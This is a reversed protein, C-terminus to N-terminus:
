EDKVIRSKLYNAKLIFAENEKYFTEKSSEDKLLSRMEDKAKRMIEKDKIINGLKFDPIGSQKDGLFEGAGRLELDKESIKFGDTTECIINIREKIIDNLESHLILYCYGLKDGRGVRGRLQHLQSLGFREAGEILITTANPNDIGVEIVTTSFLVKIDGSAFRNMIYEKEEDKMKGHIIEIKTDSFYTEKARQFESSLTIFSSDNNEILPFVVYGQEGKLIRNKLFKYCHDREYLEKYKTLVGKRSSPLTKIISLDLEGFLTLALSQPIPTATMLLYDVNKGKSLLKNRQAVGFRQQEDVIAYSLNKFVVEDYIISHTGVLISSKGERLRKLLYGRESQNVSSTLIDIKIIDELGASKILKKFTNYHQLALIETPALFATQFGSEAPILSTLFAVITKGAGVDGQLLRFMQKKSFLDNKIEEIANLQDKTLEFPITTKVKELLNSSNYREEKILINPRRESLHIYQFTLFEEFILSERAEDLAEFSTPFHMEMISAVFSKLRYKKKIVSPIDYKMNKEFVELEDVILTRLKKQSLGETLPYIPVIKGYSLANSSPKEFETMRCQLKGRSGRVFKGTLYLKAGKSVGAPLRGGYIPVECIATGDTVIVLPKSRYQFTFSSIDIVEVYVVSTKEKNELAEHLKLTKRRDDYTRPFFAILDYLTIIGKKALIEAYKPGVGKSYKISKTFIDKSYDNNLM